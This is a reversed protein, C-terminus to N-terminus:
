KITLNNLFFIYCNRFSKVKFFLENNTNYLYKPTILEFFFQGVGHICFMVATAAAGSFRRFHM